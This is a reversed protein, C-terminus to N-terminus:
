PASIWTALALARRPPDSAARSRATPREGHYLGVPHGARGVAEGLDLALLQVPEEPARHPDAEEEDRDHHRQDDDSAQVSGLGHRVQSTPDTDIRAKPKKATSATRARRSPMSRSDIQSLRPTAATPAAEMASPVPPSELGTAKRSGTRAMVEPKKRSGGAMKATAPNWTRATAVM